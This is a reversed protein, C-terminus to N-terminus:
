NIVLQTINPKQWAIDIGELVRMLSQSIGISKNIFILYAKGISTVSIQLKQNSGQMEDAVAKIQIIWM